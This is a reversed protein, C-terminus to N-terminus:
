KRKSEATVIYRKGVKLVRHRLNLNGKKSNLNWLKRYDTAKKLSTFPVGYKQYNKYKKVAM